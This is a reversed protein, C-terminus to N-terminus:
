SSSGWRCVPKELALEPPRTEKLIKWLKKHDVFDFAITYDIFWFNINKQLQRAKETIRHINAIQDRTGRGKRYESQIDPLEWNVYQQLRVQFVKLMAKSAQSILAFTHYNSCEKANGKKPTLIFVSRELGTAVTVKWFKSAYQSLSFASKSSLIWFELIMADVGMVEHCISPSVLSVTVSKIKKPELIVASSSQLWSILLHKRWPLFAIVLRFLMNFLLSM